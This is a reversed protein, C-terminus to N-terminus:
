SNEHSLNEHTFKGAVGSPPYMLIVFRQLLDFYLDNESPLVVSATCYNSISQGSEQVGDVSELGKTKGM